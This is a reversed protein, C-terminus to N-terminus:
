RYVIRLDVKFIDKWRSALLQVLGFRANLSGTVIQWCSETGDDDSEFFIQCGTEGFLELYTIERLRAWKDCSFQQNPPDNQGLMAPWRLYDDELLYVREDTICVSRSVVPRSDFRSISCSDDEKPVVLHVMLYFNTIADDGEINEILQM